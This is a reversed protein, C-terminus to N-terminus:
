MKSMFDDIISEHENKELMYRPLSIKLEPSYVPETEESFAGDPSSPDAEPVLQVQSYEGTEEPDESDVEEDRPKKKNKRYVERRSSGHAEQELPPLIKPLGRRVIKNPLGKLSYTQETLTKVNSYANPKTRSKDSITKRIITGAAPQDRLEYSPIYKYKYIQSPAKKYAERKRSTKSELNEEPKTEKTEQYSVKTPESEVIYMCEERKIGDKDDCLYCTMKDKLTKKCASRDKTKFEKMMKSMETDEDDDDDLLSKKPLKSFYGGLKRKSGFGPIDKDDSPGIAPKENFEKLLSHDGMIPEGASGGSLEPFLNLFQEEYSPNEVSALTESDPQEKKMRTLKKFNDNIAEIKKQEISRLRRWDPPINLEKNTTDQIQMIEGNPSKQKTPNRRYRDKYPVDKSGYSSSQAYEYSNKDPDAAYSCQKYKGNTEPNHCVMCTLGNKTVETCADENAYTPLKPKYEEFDEDDDEQQEENEDDTFDDSGFDEVDSTFSGISDQNYSRRVIHKMPETSNIITVTQRRMRYKYPSKDSGKRYSAANGMYYSNKKPDSEYSCSEYTGGTDLNECVLCTMKKSPEEDFGGATIEADVSVDKRKKVCRKKRANSPRSQVRKIQKKSPLRLRAQKPSEDEVSDDTDLAEDKDDQFADPVEYNSEFEDEEDDQTETVPTEVPTYKKRGRSKKTVRPYKVDTQVPHPRYESTEYRSNHNAKKPPKPANDPSQFDKDFDDEDNAPNGDEPEEKESELEKNRTTPFHTPYDHQYNMSSVPSSPYVPPFDNYNTDPYKLREPETKPYYYPEPEVSPYSPYSPYSYDSPPDYYGSGTSSSPYYPESPITSYQQYSVPKAYPAPGEDYSHPEDYVYPNVYSEERIPNLPRRFNFKHRIITPQEYIITPSPSADATMKLGRRHTRETEKEIETKMKYFHPTLFRDSGRPTPLNTDKKRADKKNKDTKSFLSLGPATVGRYRQESPIAVMGFNRAYRPETNLYTPDYTNEQILEQISSPQAIFLGLQQTTETDTVNQIEINSNKAFPPVDHKIEKKPVAFASNKRPIEIVQAIALTAADLIFYAWVVQM